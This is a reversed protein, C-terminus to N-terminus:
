KYAKQAAVLKGTPDFTLRLLQDPFKDVDYTQFRTGRFGTTRTYMPGRSTLWEAVRSGDSLKAEREPVGMERVADDFTYAGVRSQWDIKNTACGFALALLSCLFFNRLKTM